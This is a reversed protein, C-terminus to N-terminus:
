CGFLSARQLRAPPFDMRLVFRALDHAEHGVMAGRGRKTILLTCLSLFAVRPQSMSARYLLGAIAPIYPPYSGEEPVRIQGRQEHLVTEFTPVFPASTRRKFGMAAYVGRLITEADQM